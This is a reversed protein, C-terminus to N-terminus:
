EGARMRGLMVTAIARAGVLIAGDDAMYAPSHPMGVWGRSANSVGLLFMVGPVKEQFSGFDESFLPSVVGVRTIAANGLLAQIREEGRETLWFDNTVGAIEQANYYARTRLGGSQLGRLTGLIAEQARERADPDAISLTARVVISDGLFAPPRLETMVFDRPVSGRAERPTITGTRRLVAVVSDTATRAVSGTLVVTVEDRGALLPGPESGITGVQLPATHVAYIAAPWGLAFVSDALMARAGTATEESPQFILLVSGPLDRRVAAFATALALGITTHIDHGCIHRVGPTLSRYPAPDSDNSPVADMDARFAVVPGPQGGRLLGVVGHGGVGTRVTFGLNRLHEAVIGATRVEQGSLEPHQHLDHRIAVLAREQQRLTLQIPGDLPDPPTPALLLLAALAIGVRRASPSSTPSGEPRGISNREVFTSGPEGGQSEM